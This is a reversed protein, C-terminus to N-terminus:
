SRRQWPMSVTTRSPLARALLRPLVVDHAFITHALHRAGASHREYDALVRQVCGAAEDLTSFALAGRTAGLWDNFGTDQLLTPRGAALYCVSRDGFWGSRTKVYANKAVSLEGRSGRIYRKYTDMDLSVTHGDVLSWGAARMRHWNVEGAGSVAVELPAEVRGPLDVFRVFEEDKQGYTEGGHEITGDATWNAVTTFPRPARLSRDGGVHGEGEWLDVVVPPATPHWDIGATPVTCGDGGVNGGYTFHLAYDELNQHRLADVQTFLPDLDILVRRKCRRFDHLWSAGGVNLLLDAEGLVRRLESRRGGVVERTGRHVYFLPASVGTRAMLDRVAALGATPDDGRRQRAPDYCSGPRGGEEVYAVQHGLRHLGLLYHFYAFLNGAVPHRVMAGSVVIRAM